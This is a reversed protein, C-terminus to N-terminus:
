GDAHSIDISLGRKITNVSICGKESIKLLKAFEVPESCHQYSVKLAVHTFRQPLEDSMTGLVEVKLGEIRIDRSQAAAFLTSCFCGGIGTLLYQGGMLGKGGGGKEIPRDVTVDFQDNQLHMATKSCQELKIKAIAM